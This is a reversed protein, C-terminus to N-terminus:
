DAGQLAALRERNDAHIYTDGAAIYGHFSQAAYRALDIPPIMDGTSKVYASYDVAAWDFHVSKRSYRGALVTPGPSTGVPVWRRLTEAYEQDTWGYGIIAGLRPHNWGAEEARERAEEPTRGLGHIRIIVEEGYAQALVGRQHSLSGIVTGLGPWAEPPIENLSAVGFEALWFHPALLAVALRM